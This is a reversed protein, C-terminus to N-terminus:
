ESKTTSALVSARHTDEERSSSPTLLYVAQTLRSNLSIKSLTCNANPKKRALRSPLRSSEGLRSRFFFSFRLRRRRFLFFSNRTSFNVFSLCMKWSFLRYNKWTQNSAVLARACSNTARLIARANSFFPLSLDSKQWAATRASSKWSSPRTSSPTTQHISASSSLEGIKKKQRCSAFNVKTLRYFSYCYYYYDFIDGDARSFLRIMSPRYKLKRSSLLSVVPFLFLVKQLFLLLFFFRRKTMWIKRQSSM